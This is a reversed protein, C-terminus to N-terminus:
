ESGRGRQLEDNNLVVRVKNDYTSKVVKAAYDMAAKDDPWFKYWADKPNAPQATFRNEPDTFDGNAYVTLKGPDQGGTNLRVYGFRPPRKTQANVYLQYGNDRKRKTYQESTLGLRRIFEETPQRSVGNIERDPAPIYRRVLVEVGTRKANETIKELQATTELDMYGEGCSDCVDAPVEKLVLTMSDASMSFTTTGPATEGFGCVFCKM